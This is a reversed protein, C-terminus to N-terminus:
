ATRSVKPRARTEHHIVDASAGAAVELEAQTALPHLALVVRWLDDHTLGQRSYRIFSDFAAEVRQRDFVEGRYRDAFIAHVTGTDQKRLMRFKSQLSALRKAPTHKDM